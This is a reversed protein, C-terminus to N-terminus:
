MSVLFCVVYVALMLLSLFFHTVTRSPVFDCEFDHPVNLTVIVFWNNNVHFIVTSTKLCNLWIDGFSEPAWNDKPPWGRVFLVFNYLTAHARSAKQLQSQVFFTFFLSFEHRLNM